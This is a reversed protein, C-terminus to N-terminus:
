RKWRGLCRRASAESRALHGSARHRSRKRTRVHKTARHSWTEDEERLQQVRGGKKACGSASSEWCCDQEQDRACCSSAQRFCPAWCGKCKEDQSELADSAVRDRGSAEGGGDNARLVREGIQIPGGRSADVGSAGKCPTKPEIGIADGGKMAQFPERGAQQEECCKLRAFCRQLARSARLRIQMWRQMWKALVAM